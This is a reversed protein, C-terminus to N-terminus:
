AGGVAVASDLGVEIPGLEGWGLLWGRSEHEAVEIAEKDGYKMEEVLFFSVEAFPVVTDKPAIVMITM